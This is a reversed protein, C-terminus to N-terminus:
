ALLILLNMELGLSKACRAFKLIENKTLSAAILLIADAGFSKAEIIQYEDVIFDKRLIANDNSRRATELDEITGGFYKEDTLISLGSAGALTYGMTVDVVSVNGNIM